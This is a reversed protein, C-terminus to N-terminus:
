TWELLIGNRECLKEVSDTRWCAPVKLTALAEVKVVLELILRTADASILPPTSEPPGSDLLAFSFLYRYAVRELISKLGQANVRSLFGAVAHPRVLGTKLLAKGAIAHWTRDVLSASLLFHNTVPTQFTLYREEEVLIEATLDIIDAILELPLLPPSRAGPANRSGPTDVSTTVSALAHELKDM